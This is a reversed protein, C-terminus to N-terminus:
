FTRTRPQRKREPPNPNGSATWLGTGDGFSLAQFLFQIRTADPHNGARVSNGWALGPELKFVYTEGPAIPIDDPTANSIIDGLETRGYYIPFVFRGGRPNNFDDILLGGVTVNSIIELNLFYIARDGTNTVELAFDRVWDHNNLDKVSDETEKKLKVRIPVKKPIADEFLREGQARAISSTLPPTLFFIAIVILAFLLLFTKGVAASTGPRADM